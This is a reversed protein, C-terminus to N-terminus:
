KEENVLREIERAEERANALAEYLGIFSSELYIEYSEQPFLEAFHKRREVRRDEM